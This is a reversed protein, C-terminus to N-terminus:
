LMETEIEKLYPLLDGLSNIYYDPILDREEQRDSQKLKELDSQSTVGTLVLLTTFGWRSGFLIDTNCRDGIMLTRKPDINSQNMLMKAMYEDPKGMVVAKRESCSEICRVLSGTGPIVVNDSVPFREDMNTGIFHVNPDYLYTAAKTMKPYSFHEDFGVIVAGIEPDKDFVSYPNTQEIVDPGIGCHSINVQELEKGIAETGIIYVKKNFGLSQLYRASLNSTCLIDDKTAEFKLAKCKEALEERTKTSNNTVYFVQKGLKRLLNIVDSSYPLPTMHMWLVGDCDTLVTDFSNILKRIDEQSLSQIQIASM